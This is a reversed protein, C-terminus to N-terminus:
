EVKSVFIARLNPGRRAEREAVAASAETGEVLRRKRKGARLAMAERTMTATKVAGM